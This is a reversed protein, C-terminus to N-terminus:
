RSALTELRRAAESSGFDPARQYWLRAKDVDGGIGKIGLRALLAPDYTAALALAAKADGTEAVRQLVLRATVVDGAAIFQESQTLLVEAEGADLQRLVKKPPPADVPTPVAAAHGTTVPAAATREPAPPTEVAKAETTAPAAAASDRDAKTPAGRDALRKAATPVMMVTEPSAPQPASLQPLAPWEAVAVYYALPAAVGAMLLLSLARRAFSSREPVPPPPMRQPELSRPVRFGEVFM